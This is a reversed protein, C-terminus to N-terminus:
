ALQSLALLQTDFPESDAYLSCANILVNSCSFLYM